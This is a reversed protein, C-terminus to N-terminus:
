APTLWGRSTSISKSRRTEFGWAQCFTTYYWATAQETQSGNKLAELENLAESIFRREEKNRSELRSKLFSQAALHAPMGKEPQWNQNIGM